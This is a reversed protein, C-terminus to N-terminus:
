SKILERLEDPTYAPKRKHIMRHCNPCLPILDKKPDYVKAAEIESLPEIHHVELIEGLITGFDIKPNSKCVGCSDGHISLCLLRNRPNRERKNILTQTLDGEIFGKQPITDYGILEAMSAILPIMVSKVSGLICSSEKPATVKCTIEVRFGLAVKWNRQLPLGNVEVKFDENLKELFSYALTYDDTQSNQNIHEICDSAYAGFKLSIVHRKLGSPRISFIPGNSRNYNAFWFSLGERAESNNKAGKIDTGINFEILSCIEIIKSENM